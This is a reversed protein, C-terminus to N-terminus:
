PLDQLVAWENHVWRIALADVLKTGEDRYFLVALFEQGQDFFQVSNQRSLVAM